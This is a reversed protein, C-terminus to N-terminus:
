SRRNARNEIVKNNKSIWDKHVQNVTDWVYRFAQYYFKNIDIEQGCSCKHTFEPTPKITSIVWEAHLKMRKEIQQYIHQILPSELERMLESTKVLENLFIQAKKAPMVEIFREIEEATAPRM